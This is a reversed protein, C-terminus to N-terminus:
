CHDDGVTLPLKESTLHEYIPEQLLAVDTAVKQYYVAGIVFGVGLIGFMDKWNTPPYSKLVVGHIECAIVMAIAFKLSWSRDSIPKKNIQETPTLGRYSYQAVIDMATPGMMTVGYGWSLIEEMPYQLRMGMYQQAFYSGIAAVLITVSLIVTGSSICTISRPETGYRSRNDRRMISTTSHASVALYLYTSLAVAPKTEPVSILCHRSAVAIFVPAGLFICAIFSLYTPRKASGHCAFINLSFVAIQAAAFSLFAVIQIDLVTTFNIPFTSFM